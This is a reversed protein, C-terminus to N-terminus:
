DSGLASTSRLDQSSINISSDVKKGYDFTYTLSIAINRGKTWTRSDYGYPGSALWHDSHLRKAFINNFEVDFLFNGNGYSFTLDYQHDTKVKETGGNAFYREPSGYTASLSCNGFDWTLYPRTRFYSIVGAERIRSYRYELTNGIRFNGNFFNLGCVWQAFCEDQRPSNCYEGIVGDYEEGGSRYSIYTQNNRTIYHTSFTSQFWDTPYLSYDLGFWYFDNPGVSPNGELWKLETQRLILDNRVSAGPSQQAYWVRFSLRNKRNITYLVFADIGPVIEKDLHLSNVRRDYFSIQPKISLSVAGVPRYWWEFLMDATGNRQKQDSMTSGTYSMDFVDYMGSVYIQFFMNQRPSFLSSLLLKYKYSNEHIMTEIPSSAGDIYCSKGENHSHLFTWAGGVSWKSNLSVNYMGTVKPSLSRSETLSRMCNGEIIDPDYMSVGQMGSGPDENWQLAVSHTMTLKGNRFRANFGGYVDNSRGFVDTEEAHRIHDFYTGNYWIDDYSEMRDLGSLHDRSYGGRFLANYTMKGWVLKSSASYNGDNPFTQDASFRTLGGAVYDRMIFNLINNKGMFQPDNSSEMYEVRRVNKPWFTAQDMNDAPVGNIFINVTEGSVTKISGGDVHLIGTHMRDVLSPIDRSLNKSSKRPIFVAKGNEFWANEGKVILEQLETSKVAESETQASACMCSVVILFLIIENRM